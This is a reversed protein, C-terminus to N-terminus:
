LKAIHDLQGEDTISQIESMDDARLGAADKMIPKPKYEERYKEFSPMIWENFMSEDIITATYNSADMNFGNHVGICDWDFYESRRVLFPAGDQGTTSMIGDYTALMGGAATKTISGPAGEMGYVFYNVENKGSPTLMYAPYGAILMSVVRRDKAPWKYFRPYSFVRNKFEEDDIPGIIGFAINYGDHKTPNSKSQPLDDAVYYKPHLTINSVEVRLQAKHKGERQLCFWLEDPYTEVVENRLNKVVTVVNHAATIIMFHRQGCRAYLRATSCYAKNTKKNVAILQGLDRTVSSDM